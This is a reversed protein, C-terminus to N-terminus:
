KRLVHKVFTQLATNPFDPRAIGKYGNSYILKFIKWSNNEYILDGVKVNELNIHSSQKDYVFYNNGKGLMKENILTLDLYEFNTKTLLKLSYSTEMFPPPYFFKATANKNDISIVEERATRIDAM